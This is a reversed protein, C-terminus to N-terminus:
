GITITATAGVGNVRGKLVTIANADLGTLESQLFTGQWYIPATIEQGRTLDLTAGTAGYVVNGSADTVIDYVLFGKPIESGDVNGSAYAKIKGTATVQGVVTGRALTLSATVQCALTRATEPAMYPELKVPTLTSILTPM